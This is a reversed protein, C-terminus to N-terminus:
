MELLFDDINAQSWQNARCRTESILRFRVVAAVTVVLHPVDKQFHVYFFFFSETRDLRGCAIIMIAFRPNGVDADTIKEAPREIRGQLLVGLM